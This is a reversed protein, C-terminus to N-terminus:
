ITIVARVDCENRRRNQETNQKRAKTEIRSHKVSYEVGTEVLAVVNQARGSSDVVEVVCEEAEEVDEM